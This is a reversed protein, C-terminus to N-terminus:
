DFLLTPRYFSYVGRCMCVTFIQGLVTAAFVEKLSEGEM